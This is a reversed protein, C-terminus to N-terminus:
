IKPLLTLIWGKYPINKQRSKILSSWSLNHINCFERLTTSNLFYQRDGHELFYERQKALKNGIRIKEKTENTRHKQWNPHKNGQKALSINKTHEPSKKIGFSAKSMKEKTTESHRTAM